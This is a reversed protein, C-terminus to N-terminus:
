PNMSSVNGRQDVGEGRLETKVTKRPRRYGRKRSKKETPVLSQADTTISLVPQNDKNTSQLPSHIIQQQQNDVPNSNVVVADAQPLSAILDNFSAHKVQDDKGVIMTAEGSLLQMKEAAIGFAISAEKANMIPALELM